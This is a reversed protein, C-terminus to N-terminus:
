MGFGRGVQLDDTEDSQVTGVTGVRTLQRIHQPGESTSDMSSMPPRGGPRPAAPLATPQQTNTRQQRQPQPQPLMQKPAVTTQRSVSNTSFSENPKSLGTETDGGLLHGGRRRRLLGKAWGINTTQKEEVGYGQGFDDSRTNVGQIGRRQLDQQSHYQDRRRRDFWAQIDGVVFALGILPVSVAFGIGIIYKIVWGLHLEGAGSGAPRPFEIIDLAFFSALFSLPLFVITVITFVMITRGQKAAEQAQKRQLSAEVANAHKQKLDLVQTLNDNVSKAQDAMRKLDVIDLDVLQQQENVKNYLDLRDRQNRAVNKSAPLAAYLQDLVQRQQRLVSTLTDLEDQVDKCEVLLAAEKDINLLDNVFSDAEQHHSHWKHQDQHSSASGQGEEESSGDLLYEDPDNSPRGDYLINGHEHDRLWHASADKFRRFLKTEKRTLRGISLEFMEAFLLEDYDWQLRDFLGICRETIVTALEFVNRVPPRTTSNIDEVVGEFLNLPDRHPQKWRDPFCTILLDGIVFLWLQDVMFIKPVKGTKKCYRYVVQDSDQYETGTSHHKFQDLTRRPHLDTSVEVYGHILLVDKDLKSMESEELSHTNGSPERIVQSLLTRNEHTEYHLYPMFLAMIDEDQQPQIPPTQAFARPAPTPTTPTGVRNPRSSREPSAYTSESPRGQPMWVRKCSPRMFRSHVKAGRHQQRMLMRLISKLASIDRTNGELYHKTLLAELWSINNAPLHIWRFLPKKSEMKDVVTPVAFKDPDNADRAYLIHWVTHKNVKNKVGGPKSPKAKGGGQKKAGNKLGDLRNDKNRAGDHEDKDEFFNVVAARFRECAKRAARNTPGQLVHPRLEDVVEWHGNQAARILPTSDFSDKTNKLANPEQLIRQVAKLHGNEAAWHLATMGSSTRANVNANSTLLADVALESGAEAAVILPTWGGDSKADRKAGSQILLKIIKPEDHRAALHLASHRQDNTQKVDVATQGPTLLAGVLEAQGKAAAWLLPTRGERGEKDRKNLDKTKTLLLSLVESTWQMNRNAESAMIQLTTKGSNDEANPDAGCALLTKIVDNRGRLCALMLPTRGDNDKAEINCGYKLLLTIIDNRTKDYQNAVARHLPGNSADSDPRAGQELLLQVGTLYGVNIAKALLASLEDEDIRQRFHDLKLLRELDPDKKSVAKSLAMRLTPVMYPAM